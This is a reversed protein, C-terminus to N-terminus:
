YYLDEPTKYCPLALYPGIGTIKKYARLEDDKASSALAIEIEDKRLREFLGRLQTGDIDFIVAKVM